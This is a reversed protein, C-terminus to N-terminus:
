NPPKLQVYNPDPEPGTWKDTEVFVFWLILFSCLSFGGLLWFMVQYGITEIAFKQILGCMISALGFNCFVLGYM